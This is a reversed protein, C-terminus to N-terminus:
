HIASKKGFTRTLDFVLWGIGGALLVLSSPEPV